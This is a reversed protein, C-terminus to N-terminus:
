ALAQWKVSARSSRMPVPKSQAILEIGSDDDTIRPFIHFPLAGNNASISDLACYYVTGTHNKSTAQLTKSDLKRVWTGDPMPYEELLAHITYGGITIQSSELVVKINNNSRSLPRDAIDVLLAFVEEGAYFDVSSGYGNRAIQKAMGLLVSFVDSLSSDSTLKTSQDYAPIEGFDIEFTNTRGSKLDVLWSIKGTSFAVSAMAETTQHVARRLQEVKRNRWTSVASENGLLTKLDNLEAATINISPKIPLPAFLNLSLDNNDLPVPSGDRRVLPVTQVTNQIESYSLLPSQHNVREKYLADMVTSNIPQMSEFTKAIAQPNFIKQLNQIM